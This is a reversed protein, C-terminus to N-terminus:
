FNIQPTIKEIYLVVGIFSEQFQINQECGKVDMQIVEIDERNVLDEFDKIRSLVKVKKM